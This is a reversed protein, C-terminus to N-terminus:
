SESLFSKSDRRVIHYAQTLWEKINFQGVSTTAITYYDIDYILESKTLHLSPLENIGPPSDFDITKEQASLSIRVGKSEGEIAISYKPLLSIGDIAFYRGEPIKLLKTLLMAESAAKKDPYKKEYILRLGIRTLHTVNLEELVETLFVKADEIFSDLNNSPKINMIHSKNIEVSLDYKDEIRFKNVSPAINLITLKPWKTQIKSWLAGARDWLIYSDNYRLEFTVQHLNFSSFDIATSM